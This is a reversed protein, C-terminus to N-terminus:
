VMATASPTYNGRFRLGRRLDFIFNSRRPLKMEGALIWFELVGFGSDMIIWFEVIGNIWVLIWLGPEVDLIGSDLVGPKGFDLGGLIGM